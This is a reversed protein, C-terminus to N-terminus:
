VLRTLRNWLDEFNDSIQLMADINSRGVAAVDSAFGKVVDYARNHNLLGIPRKSLAGGAATWAAYLAGATDISGPMGIVVQGTRVIHVAAAQESAETVVTVGHPVALRAQPPGSAVTVRGGGALASEVLARPWQGNRALCFLHAGHRAIIAGAQRYQAQHATVGCDAFVAVDSLRAM